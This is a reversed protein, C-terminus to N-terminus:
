MIINSNLGWIIDNMEKGGIAYSLLITSNPWFRSKEIHFSWWFKKRHASHRHTPLRYSGIKSQRLFRCFYEAGM